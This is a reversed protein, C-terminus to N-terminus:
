QALHRALFAEVRRYYDYRNQPLTLGHPENAYLVWEPPRGVKILADRMREAHEVPVRRDKDGHALLLPAKIRGALNVPSTAALAERDKEPDGVLLPLWYRTTEYSADSWFAEYRLMHDSAAAFAVGCRYQDPDKALGMLAAYGGYSAGMICVRSADAWGQGAVFRIADTVDDQMALGWQKFGARYLGDGYGTSGRFEPEIVVYGRSALFQAEADWAWSRGRSWPGGHVLVVAASSKDSGRPRTVWLPLDIGDRAQIRHFSTPAMAQPDIRPRLEGVRQIKGTKSDYLLYDGPARDSFSYVLIQEHAECRTCRLANIRGPLAADVKDQLAKLAPSLWVTTYADVVVDVGRLEGTDRLLRLRFDGDFGPTSALVETGPRGTAFDFLRLEAGRGDASSTQVYLRGNVDVALPQFPPKIGDFEAIVTWRGSDLDHWFLTRRGQTSRVGLRARGRGDFMWESVNDPEDKLLPRADGNRVNLVFPRVARVEGRADYFHEGVIVEETGVAGFAVFGWGLRRVAEGDRRVSVMASRRRAPNREHWQDVAILLMDDNLWNFWYVDAREFQAVIKTPEKDQLDSVVLRTRGGEAPKIQAALWRGSPSLAVGQFRGDDFFADIPPPESAALAIPWPGICALLLSLLATRITRTAIRSVPM